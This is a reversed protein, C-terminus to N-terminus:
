ISDNEKTRRHHMTLLKRSCASEASRCVRNIDAREAPALESPAYLLRDTWYLFRVLAPKIDASASQFAPTYWSAVTRDSPRRGGTLWTRWEILRITWRLRASTSRLGMIRCVGVALMDLCARRTLFVSVACVFGVFVPIKHNVVWDLCWTLTMAAQQRWTLTENPKAYGPTPEIPVWTDDGTYVEAWVHVDEASVITQGARYDYNDNAYFGSVLRTPYGLERLIIAASTAFLYDPGRRKQLFYSVVNPCDEPVTATPDHTFDERLREVVAEVQHWGRPVDQTWDAAVQSVLDGHEPVDLHHSIWEAQASVQSDDRNEGDLKSLRATFDAERLPQLNVGQSRTHVVTLQPIFDRIPICAVGDDTWGFFDPSDIKSIHVATLHPPMPFRNTKLNVIKIQHSEEARHIPSIGAWAIRAWPKSEDEFLHIPPHSKRQDVHKWERGDFTDFRELTLHLPVRGVVFMMATSRRDNVERSSQQGRRRVTSFERGSSESRAIRQKPQFLDNIDLAISREPKRTPKYPEGYTDSFVDFLSPMHSELLLDSDVAGVSTA